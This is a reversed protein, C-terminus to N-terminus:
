NCNIIKGTGQIDQNVFPNGKYCVEGDGTIRIDLEDVVHVECYADGIIRIDTNTAILNHNRIEADGTIEISQNAVEGTMVCEGDGQINIEVEETIDLEVFGDGLIEVKATHTTVDKSRIIGDGHIDIEFHQMNAELEVVADGLIDLHCENIEAFLLDLKADGRLKIQLDDVNGYIGETAVSADGEIKIEELFPLTIRIKVDNKDLRSCGNLDLNLDDGVVSSEDELADIINEAAEIVIEFDPGEVLTLECQISVNVETFDKYFLNRTVRDGEPSICGINFQTDCGTTMILVAALLLLQIKKM